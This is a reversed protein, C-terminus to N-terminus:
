FSLQFRANIAEPQDKGAAGLDFKGIDYDLAVRIYSNIYYNLGLTITSITCKTITSGTTIAGVTPKCVTTNNNPLDHNQIFDYRAAVELAGYNHLPKPSRIAGISPDYIKTEGTLYYSGLVSFATVTQKNPNNASGTGQRFRAQGFEGQFYASHFASAVEGIATDVSPNNGGAILATTPTTAPQTGRLSVITQTLGRYSYWDTSGASLTAGNDAHDSSFNGGLQVWAKSTVIPAYVVRANYGIGQTPVGTGQNTSAGAKNLSYVSVGGWFNDASSFAKEKNYRYFVGQQYDRGGLLGVASVANRNTFINDLNSTLEDLSRWPKTQGLRVTGYDWLDHSVYVDNFGAAPTSTNSLDEDIRFRWGYIKGALTLYVRRFYFGNNNEAAGSDFKSGSDPFIGTYDFQIRGGLSGVFNGDDSRVVIGGLTSASDAYAASSVLSAALAGVPLLRKM